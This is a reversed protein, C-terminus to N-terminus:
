RPTWVGTLWATLTAAALTVVATATAVKVSARRDRRQIRLQDLPTADISVVGSKIGALRRELRRHVQSAAQREFGIVGLVLLAAAAPASRLQYIGLALVATLLLRAASNAIQVWKWTPIRRSGRVIIETVQEAVAQADGITEVTSNVVVQSPVASGLNIQASLSPRWDGPNPAPPAEAWRAVIAVGDLVADVTTSNLDVEDVGVDRYPAPMTSRILRKVHVTEAGARRLRAVIEEVDTVSLTYSSGFSVINGWAADRVVRKGFLWDFAM